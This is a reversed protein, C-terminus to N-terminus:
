SSHDAVIVWKGGIREWVLSFYGELDGKEPRALHWKGVVFYNRDGIAKMKLVDFHLVGMAARDPYGKRYGLLTAQYGYTLGHQGIFMLSDSNWYGVMFSDFDGRNWASVQRDLTESILLGDASTKQGFVSVSWLFLFVIVIKKM